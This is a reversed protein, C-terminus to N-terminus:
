AALDITEQGSSLKPLTTWGDVKRMTIQGSALLAWFLMAATAASPLVTQTKIRRKFAEHLREIANTTRASKWQSPPLTTFAFLAEGAEELSDAVAPHRLRWKRLFAQRREEIEEVTAAYIMDTYDATIEDYLRKPAHALLNRHKHVTCRQLPVGDWVAALASELGPAGDVIVFAPRRLQRRVLDDLVARWAAQTEGGMNKAALLVKQGDERVGIVVLLSITTAKRDLRVRVVTGDLILRVVPEAALDRRNWAEWDTRVKRWVRSVVDKGVDGAFVAALARRVRRTNTGALDTSAILADAALTRRQYACLGASKWESTTGDQGVIRARPVAIETPGFTGTLCRTRHGHRHGTVPAAAEGGDSGPSRRGYRPRSLATTLEEEILAEIFGRVKARLGDEIPDFWTDFLLGEAEGARASTINSIM